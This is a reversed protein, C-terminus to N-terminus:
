HYRPFATHRRTQRLMQLLERYVGQNVMVGINYKDQLLIQFCINNLKIIIIFLYRFGWQYRLLLVPLPCPKIDKNPTGLCAFHPSNM